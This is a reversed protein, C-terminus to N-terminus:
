AHMLVTGLIPWPFAPLPRRSIRSLRTRANCKTPSVYRQRAFSEYLAVAQKLSHRHTPVRTSFLIWVSLRPLVCALLLPASFRRRVLRDYLVGLRM